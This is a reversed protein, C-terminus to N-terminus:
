AKMIEKVQSEPVVRRHEGFNEWDNSSVFAQKGDEWGLLVGPGISGWAGSFAIESYKKWDLVLVDRVGDELHQNLLVTTKKGEEVFKKYKGTLAVDLWGSVGLAISNCGDEKGLHTMARQWIELLEFHKQAAAPHYIRWIKSTLPKEELQQAAIFCMDFTTTLPNFLGFTPSRVLDKRRNIWQKIESRLLHSTQALPGIISHHKKNPHIIITAETDIITDFIMCLTDRNLKELFSSATM